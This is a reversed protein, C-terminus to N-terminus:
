LILFDIDRDPAIEDIREALTKGTLLTHQNYTKLVGQIKELLYGTKKTKDKYYFDSLDVSYIKTDRSDEGMKELCNLIICTTGGAAVGVEVIKKPKKGKILGCLFGKQDSTMESSGGERLLDFIKEPEYYPTITKYM